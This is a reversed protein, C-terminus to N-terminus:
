FMSGLAFELWVNISRYRVGYSEFLEEVQKAKSEEVLFCNRGFKADAIGKYEYVYEKEGVVKRTSYGYLASILRKKEGARLNKMTYTYLRYPKLGLLESAKFLLPERVFLVIGDKFVNRLFIKDSRKLEELTRAVIQVEMGEILSVEDFAEKDMSLREDDSYILLIDIDSRKDYEGRAVSGFLIAASAHKFSESLRCIKEILGSRSIM